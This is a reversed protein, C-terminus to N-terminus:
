EVEEKEKPTDGKSRDGLANFSNKSRNERVEQYKKAKSAGSGKSRRKNKVQNFGDNEIAGVPWQEISAAM